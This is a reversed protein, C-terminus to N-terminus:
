QITALVREAKAPGAFVWKSKRLMHALLPDGVMVGHVLEPTPSWAAVDKRDRPRTWGTKEPDVGNVLCVTEIMSQTCIVDGFMVEWPMPLSACILEDPHAKGGSMHHWAAVDAAMLRPAKGPLVGSIDVDLDHCLAIYWDRAKNWAGASANWTSSDQGRQVVCGKTIDINDKEATEKLINAATGMQRLALQMLAVKQEETCNSLVFSTPHVHAVAFWNTTGSRGLDVYLKHALEDYPRTQSKNTFVSRMGMRACMYAVFISTNVDKTFEEKSLFRAIGTKAGQILGCLEAYKMNAYHEKVLWALLRYIKNYQHKSLSVGAKKRADKNLRNGRFDLATYDQVGLTLAAFSFLIHMREPDLTDQDTFESCGILGALVNVSKTLPAPSSFSKSMWSNQRCRKQWESLHNIKPFDAVVMRAIDEPRLRGSMASQYLNDAPYSNMNNM